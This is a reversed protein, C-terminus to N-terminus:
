SPWPERANSSRGGTCRSATRVIVFEFPLELFTELAPLVRQEHAPSAWVLLEGEPATLADAFVLAKQDPLWLPTEM